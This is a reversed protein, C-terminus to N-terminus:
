RPQKPRYGMVADSRNAYNPFRDALRMTELVQYNQPSLGCLRVVGGQAFVRKHLLVLQGILYSHLLELEDFEIVLRYIFHQEAVSWINEALAPTSGTASDPHKLRFFLWEPGRDVDMQWGEALELM